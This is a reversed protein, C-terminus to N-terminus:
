SRRVILTGYQGLTDHNALTCAVRYPGPRLTARAVVTDGPHATRSRAYQVEQAGPSLDDSVVAINHTLRGANRAIIRMRGTPSNVAGPELTFEDLTMRITGDQQARVFPEDGGCGAVALITAAGLAPLMARKAPMGELIIGARHGPAREEGDRDDDERAHEGGTARAADRHVVGGRDLVPRHEEGLAARAAVREVHDAGRAAGELDVVALAGVPRVEFHALLPAFSKAWRQEPQWVSSTAPESPPAM